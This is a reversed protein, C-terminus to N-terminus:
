TTYNVFVNSRDIGKHLQTSIVVPQKKFEPSEGVWGKIFDASESTDISFKNILYLLILMKKLRLFSQYKKM